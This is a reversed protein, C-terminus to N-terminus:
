WDAHMWQQLDFTIRKIGDRDMTYRNIASIQLASINKKIM